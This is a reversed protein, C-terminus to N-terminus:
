SNTNTDDKIDNSDLYLKYWNKLNIDKKKKELMEDYWKIFVDYPINYWMCTFIDDLSMYIDNIYITCNLSDPSEWIIYIYPDEFRWEAFNYIFNKIEANLKYCHDRNELIAM